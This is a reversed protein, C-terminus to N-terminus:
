TRRREPQLNRRIAGAVPKLALVAENITSLIQRRYGEVFPGWIAVAQAAFCLDPDARSQSQFPHSMHLTFGIHELPSLGAPLLHDLGRSSNAAARQFGMSALAFARDKQAAWAPGFIETSDGRCKAFASFAQLEAVAVGEMDLAVQEWVSRPIFDFDLQLRADAVVEAPSMVGPFRAISRPDFATGELRACLAAEGATPRPSAVAEVVDMLQMLVFIGLMSCGMHSSRAIRSHGLDERRQSSWPLDPSAARLAAAGSARLLVPGLGVRGRASPAARHISAAPIGLIQAKEEVSPTRWQSQRWLLSNEEFAWPDFLDGQEHWRDKAANSAGRDEPKRVPNPDVLAAMPTGEGTLVATPDVLAVFGQECFLKQPVPKKGNLKIAM